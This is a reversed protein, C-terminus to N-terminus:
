STVRSPLRVEQLMLKMLDARAATPLFLLARALRTRGALMHRGIVESFVDAFDHHEQTSDHLFFADDSLDHTFRHLPNAHPNLAQIRYALLGLLDFCRQDRADFQTPQALELARQFNSALQLFRHSTALLTDLADDLATQTAMTLAEIAIGQQELFTVVQKWEDLALRHLIHKPRMSTHNLSGTYDILLADAPLQNILNNAAAPMIPQACFLTYTNLPLNNATKASVFFVHANPQQEPPKPAFQMRHMHTIASTLRLIKEASVTSSRERQLNRALKLWQKRVVCMLALPKDCIVVAKGLHQRAQLYNAIDAALQPQRSVDVHKRVEFYCTSM